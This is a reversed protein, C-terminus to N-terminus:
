IGGSNDFWIRCIPEIEIGEIRITAREISKPMKQKKKKEKQM